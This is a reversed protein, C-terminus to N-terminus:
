TQTINPNHKFSHNPYPKYNTNVGSLVRVRIWVHVFLITSFDSANSTMSSNLINFTKGNVRVLLM